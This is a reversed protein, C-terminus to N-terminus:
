KGRGLGKVYPGSLTAIEEALFTHLRDLHVQTATFSHLMSLLVEKDVLGDGDLVEVIERFRAILKDTADETLKSYKAALGNHIPGFASEPEWRTDGEEDERTLGEKVTQMVVLLWLFQMHAANDTGDEDLAPATSFLHLLILAAETEHNEPVLAQQYHRIDTYVLVNDYIIRVMSRFHLAIMPSFPWPLLVKCTYFWDEAHEPFCLRINLKRSLELVFRFGQLQLLYKMVQEYEVHLEHDERLYGTTFVDFYRVARPATTEQLPGLWQRLQPAFFLEFFHWGVVSNGVLLQHAKNEGVIYWLPDQIMTPYYARYPTELNRPLRNGEVRDQETDDSQVYEKDGYQDILLSYQKEIVPLSAPTPTYMALFGADKELRFITVRFELLDSDSSGRSGAPAIRMPYEWERDIYPTAQEYIPKLGPNAKLAGTFSAHADAGMNTDMRKVVASIKAYFEVNQEVPIRELNDALIIFASRGLLADPRIPEGPLLADWLWFAMLNAGRIVAQSDLFWAPYPDQLAARGLSLKVKPYDFDFVIIGEKLFVSAVQPQYFQASLYLM